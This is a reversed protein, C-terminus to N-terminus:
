NGAADPHVQRHPCEPLIGYHMTPKLWGRAAFSWCKSPLRGVGACLPDPSVVKSRSSTVKWGKPLLLGQVPRGDRQTVAALTAAGHRQAADLRPGPQPRRPWFALFRVPSTCVPRRVHAGRQITWRQHRGRPAQGQARPTRGRLLVPKVAARIRPIKDASSTVRTLRSEPAWHDDSEQGCRRDLSAPRTAYSADGGAARGVM